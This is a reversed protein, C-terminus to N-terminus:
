GRFRIDGAVILFARNDPNPDPEADPRIQTPDACLADAEGASGIPVVWSYDDGRKGGDYAWYGILDTPFRPRPPEGSVLTGVAYATTGFSGSCRSTDFSFRHTAPGFRRDVRVTVHGAEGSEEDYIAFRIHWDGDPGEEGIDAGVEEWVAGSALLGDPSHALAAGPSALLLLATGATVTLKRNRSTLRM